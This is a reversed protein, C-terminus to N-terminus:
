LFREADALNLKVQPMDRRELCGIVFAYQARPVGSLNLMTFAVDAAAEVSGEDLLVNLTSLRIKRHEFGLHNEPNELAQRLCELEHELVERASGREEMQRENELLQNELRRQEASEPGVDFLNGLGSGPPQHLRLRARILNHSDELERRGERAKSIETMAQAAMYEFSQILLLRRLESDTHGCLRASPVSFDVVTRAIDRPAADGQLSPARDPREHYSAGLVIFAQGADAHKDFFSRLDGSRGLAASLDAAKAFFARLAPDSAWGAESVPIPPPLASIADRLYTVCKEVPRRLTKERSDLFKLRPNTLAIARDIAMAVVEDPM